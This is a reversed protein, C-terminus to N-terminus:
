ECLFKTGEDDGHIDLAERHQNDAVLKCSGLTKLVWFHFNWDEKHNAKDLNKSSLKLKHNM